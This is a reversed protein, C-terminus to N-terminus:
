GEGEAQDNKPKEDPQFYAAVLTLAWFFTWFGGNSMLMHQFPMGLLLPIWFGAQAILALPRLQKYDIPGDFQKLFNM